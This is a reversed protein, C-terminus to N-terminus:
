HLENSINKKYENPSTGLRKEFHKLFHHYSSYGVKESVESNKYQNTQLLRCAEKIRLNHLLENFGIGNKRILLQGLYAPHMFFHEALKKITLGERYHAHIYDNIDQVIGQAEYANEKLLLEFCVRGCSQLMVILDNFTLLVEDLNPIDFLLSSPSGADEGLQVGMYARIEHLVYIVFKRAEDPHVRLKRFSQEILVVVSQYASHDILQFARLIKELLQVQDYHWQFAVDKLENYDMILTKDAEYFAHLLAKEAAARSHSIRTLSSEAEGMAMFVRFGALRRALEELRKQVTDGTVLVKLDVDEYVISVLNYQLRIMYMAKSGNLCEEAINSWRAYDEWSGQILCVNWLDSSQSLSELLSTEESSLEEGILAKKLMLHEQERRAVQGIYHQKQEKMLEQGMQRIEQEAQEEDLPKLLYRSVRYKLAKRAYHFDSYGTLIIFKTSQHGRRRWEEIMELGDMVPMHIDVMVLDPRLEELQKLGEAGNTCVGCVEFGLNEWPILLQLGELALPEDDILLVKFEM